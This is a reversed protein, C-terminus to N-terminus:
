CAIGVEVGDYWGAGCDRGMHPQVTIYDTDNCDESYHGKM